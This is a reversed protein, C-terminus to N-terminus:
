GVSRAFAWWNEQAVEVVGIFVDEKRIGPDKGLNEVILEYMKKKQSIDRHNIVIQIFVSNESREVGFFTRDQIMNEPSHEHVLQFRDDAPIELANMMAQHISDAIARRRAPTTGKRLSINVLPM